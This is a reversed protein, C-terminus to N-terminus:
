FNCLLFKLYTKTM